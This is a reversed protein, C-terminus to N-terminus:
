FDEYHGPTRMDKYFIFVRSDPNKERCYVAHKLSAMCCVSSCYPLHAEDRSGACQIFAIKEVPRGDSTVLPKGSAIMEEMQVNTVIDPSKDYNLHTLKAPDYPKWGTALVISGITFDFKKDGQKLSVEFVGPKEMQSLSVM